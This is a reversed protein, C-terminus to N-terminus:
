LTSHKDTQKDTQEKHMEVCYTGTCGFKGPIRREDLLLDYAVKNGFIFLGGGRWVGETVLWHFQLIGQYTLPCAMMPKQPHQTRIQPGNPQFGIPQSLALLFEDESFERFRLQITASVFRTPNVSAALEFGIGM